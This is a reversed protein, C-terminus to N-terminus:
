TLTVNSLTCEIVVTDGSAIESKLPMGDARDFWTTGTAHQSVETKVAIADVGHITEFYASVVYGDTWLRVLTPLASVPSMGDETLAGTDLQAGDFSLITGDEGDKLTIRVGAVTEPATVTMTRSAGDYDITYAYMKEGYDAKIEATLSVTKGTYLARVEEATKEASKGASVCGTQLMLTLALLVPLLLRISKRM